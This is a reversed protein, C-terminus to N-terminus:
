THGYWLTSLGQHCIKIDEAPYRTMNSTLSFVLNSLPFVIKWIPYMPIMNFICALHAQSDSCAQIILANPLYLVSGNKQSRGNALHFDYSEFRSAQGLHFLISNARCRREFLRNLNKYGYNMHWDRGYDSQSRAVENECRQESGRTGAGM